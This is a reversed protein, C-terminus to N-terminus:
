IWEYCWEYVAKGADTTNDIGLGKFMTSRYNEINDVNDYLLTPVNVKDRNDYFIQCIYKAAQGRNVTADGINKIEDLNNEIEILGLEEAKLMYPYAWYDTTNGEIDIGSIKATEFIMRFLQALTVKKDPEFKNEDTGSVIELNTAQFVYDHAWHSVDIDSYYRTYYVKNTGYVDAIGDTFTALSGVVFNRETNEGTCQATVYLTKDTSNFDIYGTKGDLAERRITNNENNSDNIEFNYDSPYQIEIIIASSTRSVKEYLNSASNVTSMLYEYTNFVADIDSYSINKDENYSLTTSNEEIDSDYEYVIEWTTGYKIVVPFRRKMNKSIISTINSQAIIKDNDALDAFIGDWVNKFDQPLEGFETNEAHVFYRLENELNINADAYSSLNFLDYEENLDTSDQTGIGAKLPVCKYMNLISAIKLGDSNNSGNFTHRTPRFDSLGVYSTSNGTNDTYTQITAAAMNFESFALYLDSLALRLDLDTACQYVGDIDLDNDTSINLVFVFPMVGYGRLMGLTEELEGADSVEHAAIIVVKNRDISTEDFINLSEDLMSTVDNTGTYDENQVENIATELDSTFGDTNSSLVAYRTNDPAQEEIAEFSDLWLKDGNIDYEYMSYSMDFGMVVDFDATTENKDHNDLGFLSFGNKEQISKYLVNEDSLVDTNIINSDETTNVNNEAFATTINLLMCSLLIFSIIKKM